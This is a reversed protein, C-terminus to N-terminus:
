KFIKILLAVGMVIIILLLVAQLEQPVFPGIMTFFSVVVIGAIGYSKSKSFSIAFVLVAIFVWLLGYPIYSNFVWSLAGIVDGQMLLTFPLTQAM